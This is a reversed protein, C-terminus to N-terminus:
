GKSNGTKDTTRRKLVNRDKRDRSINKSSKLKYPLELNPPRPVDGSGVVSTKSSVADLQQQQTRKVLVSKHSSKWRSSFDKRKHAEHDYDDDDCDGEYNDRYDSSNKDKGSKVMTKHPRDLSRAGCSDREQFLCGYCLNFVYIHLCVYGTHFFSM